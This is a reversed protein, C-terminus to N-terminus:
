FGASIPPESPPPRGGLWAPTFAKCYLGLISVPKETGCDCVLLVDVGVVWGGGCGRGSWFSPSSIPPSPTLGRRGDKLFTGGWSGVKETNAWIITLNLFLYIFFKESPKLFIFQLRPLGGAGDWSVFVRPPICFPLLDFQPPVRCKLYVEFM